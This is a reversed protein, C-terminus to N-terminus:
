IARGWKLIAIVVGLAAAFTVVGAAIRTLQSFLASPSNAEIEKRLQAIDDQTAMKETLNDIQERMYKVHVALEAIAKIEQNEAM